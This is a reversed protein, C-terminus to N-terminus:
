KTSPPVTNLEAEPIALLEPASWSGQASHSKTAERIAAVEEPKVEAANNGWDKEGRVYTLVAAIQQDSFVDRWPVMQNNFQQGKVEIPGQLGDLVIRIIRATGAANIWESGALPPYQGPLGRGDAQHCKGCTDPFLRKGLSYLDVPKPASTSKAAEGSSTEDYQLANFGGSYKQLYLGGWFCVSCIVVILILSIPPQSETPEPLERALPPSLTHGNVSTPATTGTESENQRRNTENTM